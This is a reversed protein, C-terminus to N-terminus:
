CIVLYSAQIRGRSFTVITVIHNQSKTNSRNKTRAKDTNPTNTHAKYMTIQSQKTNQAKHKPSQPEPKPHHTKKALTLKHTNTYTQPHKHTHPANHWNAIKHKTTFFSTMLMLVLLLYHKDQCSLMTTDSRYRLLIVTVYPM